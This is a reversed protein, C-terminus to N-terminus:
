KGKRHREDYRDAEEASILGDGDTDIERFQAETGLWESRSVDGDRNKDMKRFWAPGKTPMRFNDEKAAGGYIRKLIASYEAGGSSAPGRRVTLRHSRPLDSMTLYGQGSRGLKEILGVAGRMERVSLRGDRNVDLLDFLGRSEDTLVLSVCANQARKQLDAVLDLYADFEKESIKGDGDKDMAKFSSGFFASAEQEDLYGDKNKDAQKFLFSMQVRMFPAYPDGGTEEAARLEVRTGPMELMALGDFTKLQDGLGKKKRLTVGPEDTGLNVTLDLDPTRKVFGALEEADLFGDGNADLAKFTPDDLRWDKRSVKSADKTDKPAYKEALRAALNDPAEGRTAVLLISQKQTVLPPTQPTYPNPVTKKMMGDGPKRPLAPVLERITLMEDENTDLRLLIEPAKALDAKTLKGTKATDLQAFIARSIDEVTPETSGGGGMMMMYQNAEDGKTEPQAQFPALGKKRYYASLGAPLIKGDETPEFDKINFPPQKKGMGGFGGFISGIGGNLIHDLPPLREVDEKTLYGKGKVDLHRFLYAVFEDHAASLTKGDVLVRVRILLPRADTLFVFDQAESKKGKGGKQASAPQALGGVLLLGVVIGAILRRVGSEQSRVGSKRNM